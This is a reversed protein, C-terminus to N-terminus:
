IYIYTCVCQHLQSADISQSHAPSCTDSRSPPVHGLAVPAVSRGASESALLGGSYIVDLNEAELVAVSQSEPFQAM